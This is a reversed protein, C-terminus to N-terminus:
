VLALLYKVHYISGFISPNMCIHGNCNLSLIRPHSAHQFVNCAGSMWHMIVRGTCLESILNLIWIDLAPVLYGTSYGPDRALDLCGIYSGSLCHLIWIYSYYRSM